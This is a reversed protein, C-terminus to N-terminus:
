PLLVRFRVAGCLRWYVSLFPILSSTALMELMHAPAHSTHALRRAALRMVLALAAVLAGAAPAGQDGLALGLAAFAFVVVAYHDWPPARRLHVRATRPHKKCLLADFYASQRQRLSAGWREPYVPRLVVADDARGIAGGAQLLRLHLDTDQRWAHRFSEDFGGVGELASKRVFANATVFEAAELGRTSLEHDTPLARADGGLPPVVVRGAVAVLPRVSAEADADADADATATASTSTSTSASADAAQGVASVRGDEALAREGGRLWDPAPITDDDTFAILPAWAARWGANRAVAPGRGQAPRVYRLAPAHTHAGLAEVLTRTQGDHGDDVVIIEFAEADFSQVLLAHLCRRLLEPRCRTTVVVSVRPPDRLPVVVRAVSPVPLAPRPAPADTRALPLAADESQRAPTM